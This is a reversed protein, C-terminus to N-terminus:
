EEAGGNKEKGFVRELYRAVIKFALASGRHSAARCGLVLLPEDLFEEDLQELLKDASENEAKAAEDCQRILDRASEWLAQLDATEKTM